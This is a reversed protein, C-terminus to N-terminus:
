LTCMEVKKEFETINPNSLIPAAMQGYLLSTVYLHDKKNKIQNQVFDDSALFFIWLSVNTILVLTLIKFLISRM